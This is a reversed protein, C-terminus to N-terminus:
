SRSTNRLVIDDRLDYCGISGAPCGSQGTAPKVDVPLTVSLKARLGGGPLAYASFVQNTTLYDAKKVGGTTLCTAGTSNPMRWLAYKSGSGAACWTVDGTGGPYSPCSSGLNIVVSARAFDAATVATTGNTTIKNACHIERRLSDLALRGEQQSEFRNTMDVQSKSASVFLQTIGGIVIGMIALVILLESLTHGEQDGLRLRQRV